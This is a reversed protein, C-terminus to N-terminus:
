LQEIGIPVDAHRWATEFEGAVWEISGIKEQARLSELLGFLMRGNRPSRRLGERFASEADAPRGARLLAAGLSERVPYYWGPPEDYILADQLAVARQWHAVSAAPSGALRATLVEAAVALVDSTRNNVWLATPPTRARTAEFAQQAAVAEAHQGKAALALARGYYWLATTAVLQADPQPTALVNAWSQARVRMLLPTAAFFDAMEPMAHILPTVAASIQDAAAIAERMRGQMSRAVAVFHLNHLYYGFYASGTVGSDNMYKRDLAAARENVAAATEYDGLVLWIHGPMHVLHGASPAIGMLRQASPIAREPTTSSEVVHIYFHNAGPHDPHRRLVGELLREAEPVGHAPRGAQDYWRWRVPLMLSEAFFTLVDPDDPYRDALLRMAAIYEAPRYEPCRKAIAEIWAREHAATNRLRRAADIADCSKQMAVDGDSDMNIHPGEAMAIGWWAMPAAPDLEAAKRFSRLAEYRNFGYLLTLGQDFFRQAETSKTAIPHRWTGLGHLLAVPNEPPPATQHQGFGTVLALFCLCFTRM